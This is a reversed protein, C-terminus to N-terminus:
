VRIINQQYFQVAAPLGVLLVLVVIKFFDMKFSRFVDEVVRWVWNRQTHQSLYVCAKIQQNQLSPCDHGILLRGTYVPQHKGRQDETGHTKTRTTSRLVVFEHSGTSCSGLKCYLGAEQLRPHVHVQTERHQRQQQAGDGHRLCNEAAWLHYGESGACASFFILTGSM